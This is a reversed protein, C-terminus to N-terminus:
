NINLLFSYGKYKFKAAQFSIVKNIITLWCYETINVHKLSVLCVWGIHSSVDPCAALRDTNPIYINLVQQVLEILAPIVNRQVYPTTKFNYKRINLFIWYKNCRLFHAITCLLTAHILALGDIYHIYIKKLHKHGRAYQIM